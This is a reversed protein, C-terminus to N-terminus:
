KDNRIKVNDISSTDDSFTFKVNFERAAYIAFLRSRESIFQIAELINDNFLIDDADLSTDVSASKEALSVNYLSASYKVTHCLFNLLKYLKKKKDKIQDASVEFLDAFKSYSKSLCNQLSDINAKKNASVKKISALHKFAIINLMEDLTITHTEFLKKLEDLSSNKYKEVVDVVDVVDVIASADVDLSNVSTESIDTVITESLEKIKTESTELALKEREQRALEKREKKTLNQENM